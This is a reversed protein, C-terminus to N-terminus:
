RGPRPAETVTIETTGMQLSMSAGDAYVIADRYVERDLILSSSEGGGDFRVYISEGEGPEGGTTSYGGLLTGAFSAVLHPTEGADMVHVEVRRGVLALMSALAQDFSLTPEATAHGETM